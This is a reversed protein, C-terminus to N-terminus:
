DEGLAFVFMLVVGTVLAYVGLDFLLPTGPKGIFPIVNSSWLGTMFSDGMAVGILGSGAAIVLGAVALARPRIGLGRSTRRLGHALAYLGFGSAAVLGGVFGGGPDNHGRLFLFVSVLLFLPLLIRSAFSFILSSMTVAASGPSTPRTRNYGTQEDTRGPRFRVLADVGLAAIALVTIEGLTDLARFDMLIVNVVNRGNALLRSNEGFYGAISESGPTVTVVFTLAAVFVGATLAIAADRIRNGPRSYDAFLPLRRVVLVFILVTLTEVAFQTMALDPGGFLAFLIAVGYGVVGLSLIAALRSRVVVATFAAAAMTLIVAGEYVRIDAPPTPTPLAAKLVLTGGVLTIVAAVVVTVYMRLYGNQLLRTQFGALGKLARLLAVFAKELSLDVRSPLSWVLRRLRRHALYLLAGLVITALSLALVPSLGHWLALTVETQEAHIASVAPAILFLGFEDPFLAIAFGLGALAVPGLWMSPPAEHVHVRPQVRGFFPRLAVLGASAAIFCNALVGAGTVLPAVTPAQLKAEYILEKSIFGLVPPLGAMSLAALVAAAATAPMAKRLGGLTEIDRTGSEHDVSGSVLFLAAKYLSHVVLFVMAAKASLTTSLGFLLVLTGLASVTSYALIKKLDRQFYGALAGFLMTVAGVATVAYHWEETGGLVPNLRALLYVGAKVMTASHLYASVPTPAEMAAPLWFHFPVQASKTFAGLLILVLVALYAPKEAIGGGLTLISSFEYNGAAAALLIFGALLALGGVGTVLLAQLAADRSASREHNFGILVYSSVGTLEWFLFLVILDGAVVLGMMSAMFLLVQSYFRGAYRHSGLYAGGYVIVIAGVGTVLLLFLTSLGDVYFALRIGLVPVWAYGAVLAEDSALSLQLALVHAFLAAPYLGLVYKTRAALLRNLLPACASLAFAGAIAVILIDM